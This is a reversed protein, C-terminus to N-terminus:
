RYRNSEAFCPFSIFGLIRVVNNSFYIELTNVQFFTTLSTRTSTLPLREFETTRFIEFYFNVNKDVFISYTNFINQATNHIRLMETCIRIRVVSKRILIRIRSRMWTKEDMASLIVFFKNKKYTKKQKKPVKQLYM